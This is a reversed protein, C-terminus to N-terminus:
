ALEKLHPEETLSFKNKAHENKFNIQNTKEAPIGQARSLAQTGM